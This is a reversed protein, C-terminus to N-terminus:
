SIESFFIYATLKYSLFIFLLGLIPSIVLYSLGKFIQNDSLLHFSQLGYSSFTTLGGCLGVLLANLYVSNGKTKMYALLIGAIFCGISNVLLTNLPFGAFSSKNLSIDVWYRSYIGIVGFVGILILNM